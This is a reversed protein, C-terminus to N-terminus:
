EIRPLKAIDQPLHVGRETIIKTIYRAPTIDFAPNRARANKPTVRQAEITLVEDEARKEVPIDEGRNINLDITTMPAAVYFPLSNEHALVAKEYTGIKNAVDGNKAIRDAGVIVLDIEGKKMFYGAANDAIIAYDIGEQDLEWATLRAGQLRPRTEDVFVFINKNNQFAFRIPALATGIDLTALAGANCHTLVRAGNKILKEGFEGIRRCKNIIDTAYIEAAQFADKGKSLEGIMYDIAYFLDHATPRTKRLLESAQSIEVGNAQAVAMGYAATAGISPAGRVVMEKIAFAVDEVTNAEFIRIEHPIYRQDIIKVVGGEVWVARRDLIKGNMTLKM